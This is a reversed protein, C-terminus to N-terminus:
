APIPQGGQEPEGTPIPEQAPGGGRRKTRELPTHGPRAHIRRREGKPGREFSLAGSLWRDLPGRRHRRSRVAATSAGASSGATLAAAASTASASAGCGGPLRRLLYLANGAGHRGLCKEHQEIRQAKESAEVRAPRRGADGAVVDKM